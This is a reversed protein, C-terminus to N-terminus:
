YHPQAGGGSGRAWAGRSRVGHDEGALLIFSPRGWAVERVAAPCGFEFRGPLGSCVTCVQLCADVVLDALCSGYRACCNDRAHLVCHQATAASIILFALLSGWM